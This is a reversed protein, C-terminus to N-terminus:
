PEKVLIIQVNECKINILRFFDATLECGWILETAFIWEKVAASFRTTGEFAAEDGTSSDSEEWDPDDNERERKSRTQKDM